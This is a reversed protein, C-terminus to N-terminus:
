DFELIFVKKNNVRTEIIRPEYDKPPDIIIIGGETVKITFKVAPTKINVEDGLTFELNEVDYALATYIM